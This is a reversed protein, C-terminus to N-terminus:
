LIKIWYIKYIMCIRRPIIKLIQIILKVDFNTLFQSQSKPQQFQTAPFLFGNEQYVLKPDHLHLNSQSLNSERTNISSFFTSMSRIESIFSSSETTITWNLISKVVRYLYPLFLLPQSGTKQILSSIEECKNCHLCHYLTFVKKLQSRNCFFLSATFNSTCDKHFILKSDNQISLNRWKSCLLVQSFKM